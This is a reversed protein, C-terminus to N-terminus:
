RTRGCVLDAMLRSYSYAVIAHPRAPHDTLRRHAAGLDEVLTDAAVRVAMPRTSTEVTDTGHEERYRDLLRAMRNAEAPAAERVDEIAAAIIAQVRAIEAAPDAPREPKAAERIEAALEQFLAGASPPRPRSAAIGTMFLLGTVVYLIVRGAGDDVAGPVVKYLTLFMGSAAAIVQLTHTARGDRRLVATNLILFATLLWMGLGTQRAHEDSMRGLLGGWEWQSGESRGLAAAGLLLIFSSLLMTLGSSALAQTFTPRTARM